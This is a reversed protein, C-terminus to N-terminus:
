TTHYRKGLQTKFFKCLLQSTNKSWFHIRFPIYKEALFLCTENISLTWNIIDKRPHFLSITLTTKPKAYMKNALPSKVSSKIYYYITFHLFAIGRRWARFRDKRKLNTHHPSTMKLQNVM